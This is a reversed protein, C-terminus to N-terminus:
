VTLVKRFIHATGLVASRQITEVSTNTNIKLLALFHNYPISIAGLADNIVIIIMIVINGNEHYLGEKRVYATIVRVEIQDDSLLHVIM